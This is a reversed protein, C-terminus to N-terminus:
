LILFFITKKVSPYTERIPQLKTNENESDNSKEYTSPDNKLSTITTLKEHNDKPKLSLNVLFVKDDQRIKEEIRNEIDTFITDDLLVYQQLM